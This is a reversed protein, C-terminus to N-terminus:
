YRGLAYKQFKCWQEFNFKNIDKPKQNNKSPYYQRMEGHTTMYCLNGMRGGMSWTTSDITDFRIKDFMSTSTFGLGHIIAGKEHAKDIFWPIIEFEEKKMLKRDLAIGGYAIYDVYDLENVFWEKGRNKHFVPIPKKNVLSKLKNNLRLYEDWGVVGEIDLEFFHKIDYENIFRAYREIYENWDISNNKAGMFTFAGSDLLFDKASLFYKLQWEKISYFSELFFDCKKLLEPDNKLTGTGALFVKM